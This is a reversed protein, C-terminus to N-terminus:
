PFLFLFSPPFPSLLPFLFFFSLFSFLGLLMPLINKGDLVRDSPPEIGAINLVTPFIDLSTAMEMNIQGPKITGPWRVLAPIRIGGEWTSGKGEFFPGNSGGEGPGDTM